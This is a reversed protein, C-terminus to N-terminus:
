DNAAFLARATEDPFVSTKYLPGCPTGALEMSLALLSSSRELYVDLSKAIDVMVGIVRRDSAKAFAVQEMEADEREVDAKPVGLALLLEAVGERLRPVLTAIPAAAVVVPLYTPESVAIVLQRRGVHVLNAYWDGLRTTTAGPSPSLPSGLRAQLRSTARLTFV